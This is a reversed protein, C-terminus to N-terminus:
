GYPEVTPGIGDLPPPDFPDLESHGYPDILSGAKDNTGRFEIRLLRGLVLDLIGEIQAFISDVPRNSATTAHAPTAVLAFSLVSALLLATYRSM